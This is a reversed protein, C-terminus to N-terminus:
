CTRSSTTVNPAPCEEEKESELDADLEGSYKCDPCWLPEGPTPPDRLYVLGTGQCYTCPM